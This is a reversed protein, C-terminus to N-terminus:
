CRVWITRAADFNASVLIKGHLRALFAEPFSMWQGTALGIRKLYTACSMFLHESM